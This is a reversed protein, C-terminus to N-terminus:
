GRPASGHKARGLHVTPHLGKNPPLVELLELRSDIDVPLPQQVGRIPGAAAAEM